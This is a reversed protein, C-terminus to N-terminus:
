ICTSRNQELLEEVATRLIVECRQIALGKQFEPGRLIAAPHVIAVQKVGIPLKISHKYGPKLWLEPLKGVTVVLKPKAIVIMEQLRPQCARIAKEDPEATKNGDEGLPICAVLNTFAWAVEYCHRETHGDEGIEVHMPFARAIIQDLLKGAPGIFPRVLADESAGPAEGIFLIDCPLSGRALVVSSRTECLTCRTCSSWKEKHIQYLSKAM